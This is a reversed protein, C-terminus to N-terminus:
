SPQRRWQQSIFSTSAIRSIALYSSPRTAMLPFADRRTAILAILVAAAAGEVLGPLPANFYNAFNWGGALRFAAMAVLCVLAMQRASRPRLRSGLFESWLPLSAGIAFHVMYALIVTARYQTPLALSLAAFAIVLVIMAAPRGRTTVAMFLVLASGVLEVTISWMPPVLFTGVGFISALISILPTATHFFLSAWHSSNPVALDHDILLLLLLSFACVAVIAPLNQFIRRTLFKIAEAYGITVRNLSATLVYGSLVFFAVVAAHGNLITEALPYYRVPMAFYFSCHHLLVVLAAIGRFSQLEAIHKHRVAM